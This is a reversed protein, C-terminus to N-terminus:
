NVHLVVMTMDDRPEPLHRFSGVVDWITDILAEPSQRISTTLMAYLREFSFLERESNMEEVIGDSLFIVDDGTQLQVLREEYHAAANSGLPFGNLVIEEVQGNRRLIPYLHGANSIQLTLRKTDLVACCATVYRSFSDERCLIQNANALVTAPPLSRLIESRLMSRAMMMVLAAAISKGAADAIVIVLQAPELAIFDYFDGSTERASETRSALAFRDGVYPPFPYLRQQLDRAIEVDRRLLEDRMIQEQALILHHQSQEHGRQHLWSITAILIMFAVVPVVFRFTDNPNELYFFLLVIGSNIVTSYIISNSSILMGVLLSSLSAMYGFLAAYASNHAIFLNGWFLTLAAVNFLICFLYAASVTKGIRNLFYALGLLGFSSGVIAFSYWGPRPSILSMGVLAFGLLGLLLLSLWGLIYARRQLQVSLELTIRESPLRSKKMHVLTYLLGIYIM